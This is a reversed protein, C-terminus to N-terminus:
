RPSATGALYYELGYSSEGGYYYYSRGLSVSWDVTGIAPNETVEYTGVISRFYSSAGTDYYDYGYYYSSYREGGLLFYLSDGRDGLIWTDGYNNFYDTLFDLSYATSTVWPLAYCDDSLTEDVLEYSVSYEWQLDCSPCEFESSRDGAVKWRFGCNITDSRQGYRLEGVVTDADQPPLAAGTDEGGVPATFPTFIQEAAKTVLPAPQYQECGVVLPLLLTWSLNMTRTLNSM